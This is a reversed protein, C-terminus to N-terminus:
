NDDIKMMMEFLTKRFNLLIDSALITEIVLFHYSKATRKKYLNMFDQFDTDWSHDFAIQQLEQKKPIKMFSYQRSHLRINKPAAFYSQTIFVIKNSNEVESLYNM